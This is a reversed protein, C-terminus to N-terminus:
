RRSTHHFIRGRSSGRSAAAAQRPSIGSSEPRAAAQCPTRTTALVPDADIYHTIRIAATRMGVEATIVPSEGPRLPASTVIRARVM